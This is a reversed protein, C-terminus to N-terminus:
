LSRGRLQAFSRAGQQKLALFIRANAFQTQEDLAMRLGGSAEWARVLNFPIPTLTVDLM